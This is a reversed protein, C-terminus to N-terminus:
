ETMTIQCEQLICTQPLSHGLVGPEVENEIQMINETQFAENVRDSMPEKSGDTM